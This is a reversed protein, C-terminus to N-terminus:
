LAIRDFSPAVGASALRTKQGLSSSSSGASPKKLRRAPPCAHHGIQLRGLIVGCRCDHQEVEERYSGEAGALIDAVRYTGSETGDTRWLDSGSDVTTANFYATSGVVILERPHSSRLVPAIDSVLRTGANTGDTIWLEAGHVGDNTAFLFNPGLKWFTTPLPDIGSDSGPNIDKVTALTRNTSDYVALEYGTSAM